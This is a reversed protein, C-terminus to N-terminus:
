KPRAKSSHIQCKALARVLNEDSPLILEEHPKRNKDVEITADARQEILKVFLDDRESLAFGMANESFEVLYSRFRFYISASFHVLFFPSGRNDLNGVLTAAIRANNVIILKAIDCYELSQEDVIHDLVEDTIKEVRYLMGVAFLRDIQDAITQLPIGDQCTLIVVSEM